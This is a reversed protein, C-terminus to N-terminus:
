KRIGFSSRRFVVWSLSLDDRFRSRRNVRSANERVVRNRGFCHHAPLSSRLNRGSTYRKLESGTFPDQNGKRLIDEITEAFGIVYLAVAVTQAVYFVVGITGGSQPGISRSILKYVGGGGMEGNTCIACLSLTTITTVVNALIIILTGLWIGAQGVVWGLRLFMIVGWINLLVPIFVGKIWGLKVPVGVVEEAVTTEHSEEIEELPRTAGHAKAAFDAKNNLLESMTARSTTSNPRYLITSPPHDVVTDLELRQPVDNASSKM